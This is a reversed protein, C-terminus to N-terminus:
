RRANNAISDIILDYDKPNLEHGAGELKFFEAGPIKEALIKAHGFNIVPDATGHIIVAPVKIEEARDHYQEGGDLMAHNLM